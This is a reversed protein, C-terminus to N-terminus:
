RIRKFYSEIINDCEEQLIGGKVELSSNMIQRLDIKSGLAGYLLDYSGFYVKSIRSQIIASACMPCPELTVYMECDNLRWSGIKKSAEKIAVMEAHLTADQNLEKENSSISLIENGKVIVAGVPVDSISFNARDLALRMFGVNMGFGAEANNLLPEIKESDDVKKM